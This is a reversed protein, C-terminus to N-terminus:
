DWGEPPLVARVGAEAAEHSFGRRLLMGSLAPGQKSLPKRAVKPFLSAAAEAARTHEDSAMEDLAAEAVARDVGKSELGALLATRGAPRRASREAIWQRAFELDDILGLETLRAVVREVVEPEHGADLLRQWLDQETRARGALLRGAREMGSKYGSDNDISGGAVGAPAEPDLPLQAPRAV